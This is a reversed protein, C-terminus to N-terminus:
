ESTFYEKVKDKNENKKSGTHKCKLILAFFNVPCPLQFVGEVVNGFDGM